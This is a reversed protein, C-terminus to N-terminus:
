RIVKNNEIESILTISMKDLENLIYDFCQLSELTLKSVTIM